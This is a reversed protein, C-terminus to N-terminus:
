KFVKEAVRKSAHGDDIACFRNYFTQYKDRYDEQVNSINKIADMVQDNNKLIPGPIEQEIDIYFGRLVDRYKELDYMYFLIPRKLNAYDFFVSSYDTILIDSILYLEAIDDYKSVNYAFGKHSSLDLLDAIFYHTRLLIIYEAGFEKQLRELDLKLSFKYKGQEYFDDDRWTPAYLIVKKNAPLKLKQKIKLAIEDKNPASLIDNRPYGEVLMKEREYMFGSNFVEASFENAAILYDWDRSQYYFEQKYLPRASHVDDMDFVLKKLPTGHWTQLFTAAERKKLWLPQRMNNVIYNARAMYYFYKFSFRAVKKPNGPIETNLNNIIWIHKYKKEQKLLYEYIYKPSDSYNKGLFSEYVIVNKRIKQKLFVNKYLYKKIGTYGRLARKFELSRNVFKMYRLSKRHKKNRLRRILIQRKLPQSRINRIHFKNAGQSLANLTEKIVQKDEEVAVENLAYNWYYDMLYNDLSAKTKSNENLTKAAKLYADILYITKKEGLSQSLSPKNIPDNHYRKVYLTGKVGAVKAKAEIANLIFPLEAFVSLSEDFELQNILLFQRRFLKGHITKSDYELNKDDAIETIMINLGDMWETETQKEYLSTLFSEYKLWTNKIVGYLIDVQMTTSKIHNMWIELAGPLLYDDADLFCIYDGKAAEMGRNRAMSVNVNGCNIIKYQEFELQILDIDAVVDEHYAIIVEYDKFTQEKISQLCERLYNIYNKYPIIISIEM